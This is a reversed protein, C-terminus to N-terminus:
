RLAAALEPGCGVAAAAAVLGDELSRVARGGGYLAELVRPPRPPQQEQPQRAALGCGAVNGGAPRQAARSATHAGSPAKGGRLM